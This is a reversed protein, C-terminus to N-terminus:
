EGGGVYDVASLTIIGDIHGDPASSEILFDMWSGYSISENTGVETIYALMNNTVVKADEKIPWYERIIIEQGLPFVRETPYIFYYLENDIDRKVTLWTFPRQIGIDNYYNVVVFGSYSDIVTGRFNEVPERELLYEFSDEINYEYGDRFPNHNQSVPFTPVPTIRGSSPTPTKEITLDVIDREEAPGCAAMTAAVVLAALGQYVRKM